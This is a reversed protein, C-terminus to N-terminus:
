YNGTLLPGPVRTLGQNSLNKIKLGDETENPEKIEVTKKKKAAEKTGKGEL